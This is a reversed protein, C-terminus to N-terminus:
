LDNPVWSPANRKWERRLLQDEQGWKSAEGWGGYVEHRVVSGGSHGVSCTGYLSDDRYDNEIPKM